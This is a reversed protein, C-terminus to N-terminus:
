GNVEAESSERDKEMAAGVTQFLNDTLVLDAVQRSKKLDQTLVSSQKTAQEV